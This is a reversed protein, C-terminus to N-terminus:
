DVQAAAADNAESQETADRESSERFLEAMVDELPPDEVALDEIPHDRLTETLVQPV